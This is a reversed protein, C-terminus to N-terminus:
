GRDAFTPAERGGSVGGRVLQWCPAQPSMPSVEVTPLFVVSIPVAAEECVTPVATLSTAVTEPAVAFAPPVIM